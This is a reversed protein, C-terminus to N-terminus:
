SSFSTLKLILAKVKEETEVQSLANTATTEEALLFERYLHVYEAHYKVAEFWSNWRTCVAEPPAKAQVFEKNILFSVWRRKRAPKKFFVSRMWTVLSAADSFYKYYQWTESVLNIVHCLSTVHVSSSTVVRLAERYGKLCYAANDTVVACADNLDLSNSLLSALIDQSFTSHNCTDM